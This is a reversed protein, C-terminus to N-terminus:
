LESNPIKALLNLLSMHQDYIHNQPTTLIFHFFLIIGGKFCIELFVFDYPMKGAISNAEKLIENTGKLSNVRIVRTTIGERINVDYEFLM